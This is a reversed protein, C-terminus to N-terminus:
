APPSNWRAGLGIPAPAISVIRTFLKTLDQERLDAIPDENGAFAQEIAQWDEANLAREAAPLVEREERQMHRRHFEAYEEVAAAFPGSWHPWSREFQDLTRELERIRRAGERHEARLSDLLPITEPAREALRAFLFQDEKPHHLREPFEDVYRIMARFVDFQPRVRPNEATHALHRLGHLVAALSHHEARLIRIAENM